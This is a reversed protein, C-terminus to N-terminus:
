TSEDNVKLLWGSKIWGPGVVVRMNRMEITAHPAPEVLEVRIGYKGPDVQLQVIEKLYQDQWVYTREAFLEDNVYLRYRPYETHWDCHVDVEVCVYHKGQKM